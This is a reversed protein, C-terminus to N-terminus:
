ITGEINAGSRTASGIAAFTSPSTTVVWGIGYVLMCFSATGFVADPPSAPYATSVVEGNNLTNSADADKWMQFLIVDGVAPSFGNPDVTLSFSVPTSHTSGLDVINSCPSQSALVAGSNHYYFAALKVTVTSNTFQATGSFAWTTPDLKCSFVALLVVAAAACAAAKLLRNKM